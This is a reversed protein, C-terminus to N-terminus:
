DNCKSKVFNYILEQKIHTIYCKVIFVTKKNNNPMKSCLIGIYM